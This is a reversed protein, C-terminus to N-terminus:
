PENFDFIERANSIVNRGITEFWAGEFFGSEGSGFCEIEIIRKNTM